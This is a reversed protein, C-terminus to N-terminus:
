GGVTGAVNTAPSLTAATPTILIPPNTNFFIDSITLRVFPTAVGPINLLKQRAEPDNDYFSVTQSGTYSSNNFVEILCGLQPSSNLPMQWQVLLQTSLVSASCNTVLIPDFAPMAPQNSMTLTLPVNYLSTFGPGVDSETATNTDMLYVYGAST